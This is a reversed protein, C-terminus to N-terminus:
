EDDIFRLERGIKREIRSAIHGSSAYKDSNGRSNDIQVVIDTKGPSAKFRFEENIFYELGNAGLGKNFWNIKGWKVELMARENGDFIHMMADFMKDDAKEIDIKIEFDRELLQSLGDVYAIPVGLWLEYEDEDRQLESSLVDEINRFQDFKPYNIRFGFSLPFRTWSSLETGGRFATPRVSYNGYTYTWIGEYGGKSALQCAVNNKFYLDVIAGVDGGFFLLRGDQMKCLIEKIRGKTRDFDSTYLLDPIYIDFAMYDAIDWERKKMFWCTYTLEDTKKKKPRVKGITFSGIDGAIKQLADFLEGKKETHGSIKAQRAGIIKSLRKINSTDRLRMRIEPMGHETACKKLIEDCLLAGVFIDHRDKMVRFYGSNSM